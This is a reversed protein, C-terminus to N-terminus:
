AVKALLGQENLQFTFTYYEDYQTIFALLRYLASEAVILENQARDKNNDNAEEVADRQKKYTEIEQKVYEERQPKANDKFIVNNQLAEFM